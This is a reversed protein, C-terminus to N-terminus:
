SLLYAAYMPHRVVRYPGSTMVGRNAAIIGFSRRLTLKAYIQLLVGATILLGCFLTPLPPGAERAITSPHARSRWFCSALRGTEAFRDERRAPHPHARRGPEGVHRDVPLGSQARGLVRRALPLRLLRFAYRRGGARRRRSLDCTSVAREAFHSLEDVAGSQALNRPM